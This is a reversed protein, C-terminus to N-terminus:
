TRSEHAESPYHFNLDYMLSLTLSFSVYLFCSYFRMSRQQGAQSHSCGWQLNLNAPVSAKRPVFCCTHTAWAQLFFFLYMSSVDCQSAVSHMFTHVTIFIVMFKHLILYGCLITLTSQLNWWIYITQSIFSALPRRSLNISCAWDPNPNSCSSSFNVLIISCTFASLLTPFNTGPSFKM